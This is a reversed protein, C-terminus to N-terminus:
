TLKRGFFLAFKQILNKSQHIMKFKELLKRSRLSLSDIILWIM